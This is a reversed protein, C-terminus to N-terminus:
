KPKGNSTQQTLVYDMPIDWADIPMPTDGLVGLTVGITHTTPHEALYRDYYGKGRGLRYGKYFHLAPVILVDLSDPAPYQSLTPESLAFAGNIELEDGTHYRYFAIRETDMVRPLYLEKGEDELVRYLPCLDVEDAMPMYLGITRYPLHALLSKVQECIDRSRRAREDTALALSFAKAQKRLQQKM